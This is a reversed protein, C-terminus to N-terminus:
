SKIHIDVNKHKTFLIVMFFNSTVSIGSRILHNCTLNYKRIIDKYRHSFLYINQSTQSISFGPTIIKETICLNRESFDLLNNYARAFRGLESIYVCCWLIAVLSPYHENNTNAKNLTLEVPYIEKTYVYQRLWLQSGIYWGFLITLYKYWINNRYTKASKLRLNYSM